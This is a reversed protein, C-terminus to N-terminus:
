RAASGGVKYERAVTAGRGVLARGRGGEPIPPSSTATTILYASLMQFPKAVAPAM